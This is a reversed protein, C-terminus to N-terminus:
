GTLLALAALGRIEAATKEILQKKVGERVRNIHKCNASPGQRKHSRAYTWDKCSCSFRQAEPHYRVKYTTGADGVVPVGPQNSSQRYGVMKVFRKLKPDSRPDQRVSEVFSKSRLKRHFARWDSPVGAQFHEDLFEQHQPNIPQQRSM